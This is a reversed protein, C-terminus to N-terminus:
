ILLYRAMELLMRNEREAVGNQEPNYEVSLILVIGKKM